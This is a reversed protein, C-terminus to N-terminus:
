DPRAQPPPELDRLAEVRADHIAQGIAPGSAGRASAAAAVATADVAAVRRLADSLRERPPYPESRSASGAAPM